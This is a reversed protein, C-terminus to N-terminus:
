IRRRVKRIIEAGCKICKSKKRIYEHKGEKRFRDDADAKKWTHKCNRNGKKIFEM